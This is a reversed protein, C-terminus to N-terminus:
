LCKIDLLGSYFLQKILFKVVILFFILFSRSFHSFFNLRFLFRDCSQVFFAGFGQLTNCRKMVFSFSDIFVARNELSCLLVLKPFFRKIIPESIHCMNSKEEVNNYDDNLASHLQVIEGYLKQLQFQVLECLPAMM